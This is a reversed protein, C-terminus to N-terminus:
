QVKSASASTVAEGLRISLDRCAARQWPAAEGVAISHAALGARLLGVEQETLEVTITIAM